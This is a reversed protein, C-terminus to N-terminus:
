GGYCCIMFKARDYPDGGTYWENLFYGLFPGRGVVINIETRTSPPEAHTARIDVIKGYTFPFGDGLLPTPLEVTM